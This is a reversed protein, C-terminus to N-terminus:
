WIGFLGKPRFVLTIVLVGLFIAVSWHAGIYFTTFVEVIALTFAAILTGPVSGLGGFVVVVLAKAFIPWGVTPFLQTRPVLLMGAIGGLAAAIGFTYSFMRSTPIGVINAGVPDQAVGRMAMGERTKRLFLTLTVVITITILLTAVDHKSVAIDGFKFVGEVLRPLTKGLPGFIVLALNDLLLASGLTVIIATWRWDAFRRSSYLFYIFIKEYLVGFLYMIGITIGFVVGYELNTYQLVAWAIYAGWVFFSGMAYHFVRTIGYVLTLGLSMLTYIGGLAVAVMLTRILMETSM